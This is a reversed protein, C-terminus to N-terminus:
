RGAVAETESESAVEVEPVAKVKAGLLSLVKVSPNIHPPKLHALDAGEARRQDTYNAFAGDPLLTVEIPKFDIFREMSALDQHIFGDDLKKIQEYVATAVGSASAVYGDKLELYLRLVPRGEIIEKRATWDAYPITSNEIAQWIVRETLRIPGLDILDDSRREFRMQPINIGLNENKVSTIKVVDGMRYRVMAGGHFNTIVMDYNEGAKVEDLLVTKPRYSHDFQWKFHEAEPIFELFNLNPIFTMGDYDWTQTAIISGETCVYTDLPYRGWLEKIKDRYVLGDTGGGMIGKIDWLDRPLIPRKALKSKVLGKTLRFLAKPKSLLPLIKRERSHKKFQEAIAVLIISLGFFYDFGESLALRFGEEIRQEFSMSEAQELPPLYDSVVQQQMIHALVGSTYPKPAIAYVIRAHEKAKSVDCRGECSSLIGTGYMLIGLEDAFRRSIPIWKFAYEGSRGSTHAWYLPKAPLMNENKELLEPCYDHYTTLPVQERFEEVTEPMAGRMIKRGLECNRLLELQELLLRKQIAMFQELSLDIFGCCMQWLEEGRGQRLLEQIKSM